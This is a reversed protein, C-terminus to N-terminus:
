NKRAVVICFGTNEEQMPLFTNENQYYYHITFDKLKREIAEQFVKKPMENIHYPNTIYPKNNKYRLMPSSGVFIGGKKLWNNINELFKSFVEFPVHELTEISIINDFSSDQFTLKSLDEQIFEINNTKNEKKAFTIADYSLDVAWVRNSKKSLIKSGYGSGCACDLTLSDQRIFNLAFNYRALHRNTNDDISNQTETIYLREPSFNSLLMHLTIYGVLTNENDVVPLINIGNERLIRLAVSAEEHSNITKPLKTIINEIKQEQEKAFNRRVDGDTLIGYLKYEDEVVFLTGEVFKDFLSGELKNLDKINVFNEIDTQMLESVLPIDKKM